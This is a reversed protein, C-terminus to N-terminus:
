PSQARGPSWVTLGAARAAEIMRRDYALVGDCRTDLSLASAIHIADLSRLEQPRLSAARAIVEAGLPVIDLATFVSARPPPLGLRTVARPVEVLAVTSTAITHGRVADRLAGTEPELVFFKVLASSDAYWIGPM